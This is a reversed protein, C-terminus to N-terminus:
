LGPSASVQKKEVSRRHHDRRTGYPPLCAPRPPFARLVLSPEDEILKQPLTSTYKKAGKSVETSMFPNNAHAKEWRSTYFSARLTGSSM